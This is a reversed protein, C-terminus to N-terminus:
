LLPILSLVKKKKKKKKKKTTAGSQQVVHVGEQTGSAWCCRDTCPTLMLKEWYKRPQFHSRSHRGLLVVRSSRKNSAPFILQTARQCVWGPISPSGAGGM